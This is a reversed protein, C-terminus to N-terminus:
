HRPAEYTSPNRLVLRTRRRLEAAVPALRVDRAAALSARQRLRRVAMRCEGVLEDQNGGIAVFGATIEKCRALAETGTADLLTARFREALQAAYEATRIKEKRREYCRRIAELPEELEALERALEPRATRKEALYARTEAAFSLYTQIRSRIHRVFVLVNRLTEEIKERRERQQNRSYIANLVDRAGCTAIGRYAAPQGELDLIYECPGVGLTSRVIDVATYVSLPTAPVRNIAYILAPGRFRVGSALPRLYATGDPESWCPYEFWGLVTTWRRRNAPIRTPSGFWGHKVYSGDGARTLLEWSDVLENRCRWDVRWQAPYPRQWDLRLTRGADEEAVERVHWSGSGELLAVWISDDRGYPISSGTVLRGAGTQHIELEVDETPRNWVAMLISEGAGLLHLLFHETPVAARAASVAAADLVLDDAFFDPVVAFRCPADIRLGTTGAGGATTAIFPQGITLTFRVPLAEGGSGAYVADLSTRSTKNEAINLSRLATSASLGFPTLVARSRNEGGFRAYVEAGNGARRFVVAIKDNALVADGRFVHTVDDEEIARWGARTRLAVPLLVSPSSAGTDFLRGAAMGGSVLLVSVALLTNPM